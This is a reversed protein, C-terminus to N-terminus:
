LPRPFNLEVVASNELLGDLKKFFSSTDNSLSAICIQLISKISLLDNALNPDEIDWYPLGSFSSYVLDLMQKYLGWDPELFDSNGSFTSISITGQSALALAHQKQYKLFDSHSSKIGECTIRLRELLFLSKRRTSDSKKKDENKRSEEAVSLQKNMQWWVGYGTAFIAVVSGLAQVWSAINSSNEFILNSLSVAVYLVASSAILLGWIVVVREPWSSSDWM